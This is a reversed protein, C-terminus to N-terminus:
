PTYMVADSCNSMVYYTGGSVTCVTSGAVACVGPLTVEVCMNAINHHYVMPLKKRYEKTAFAAFVPLAFATVLLFKRLKM